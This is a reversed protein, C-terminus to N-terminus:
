YSLWMIWSVGGVCAHWEPWEPWGLLSAVWVVWALVFLVGYKDSRKFNIKDSLNLLQRYPASTKSNECNM